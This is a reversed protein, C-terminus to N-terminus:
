KERRKEKFSLDLPFTKSKGKMWERLDFSHVTDDRFFTGIRWKEEM